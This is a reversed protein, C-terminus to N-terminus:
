AGRAYDADPVIVVDGRIEHTTGPVCVEHYLRTAEVNVPLDKDHGEDDILMVTTRDKLRVTDLTDAGILKRVDDIAHPGVLDQQTGDVRILKRLVAPAAASEDVKTYPYRETFPKIHRYFHSGISPAAALAAFDDASVGDYHYLPGPAAGKGAFRIALRSAAADHGIAAIQSSQVPTLPIANM